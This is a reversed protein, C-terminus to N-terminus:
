HALSFRGNPALMDILSVFYMEWNLSISFENGPKDNLQFQNRCKKIM